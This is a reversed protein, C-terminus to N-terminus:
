CRPKPLISVRSQQRSCTMRDPRIPDFLDEFLNKHFHKYPLLYHSNLDHPVGIPLGNIDHISAPNKAETPAGQTDFHRGLALASDGHAITALRPM